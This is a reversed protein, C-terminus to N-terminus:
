KKGLATLAAQVAAQQEPPLAQLAALIGDATLEKKKRKVKGLEIVQGGIQKFAIGGARGENHGVCHIVTGDPGTCTFARRPGKDRSEAEVLAAEPTPFVEPWKKKERKQKPKPKAETPSSHTAHPAAPPQPAKPAPINSKPFTPTQM